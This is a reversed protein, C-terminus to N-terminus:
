NCCISLCWCYAEAAKDGNVKMSLLLKSETRDACCRRHCRYRISVDTAPRFVGIVSSGAASTLINENNTNLQQVEIHITQM